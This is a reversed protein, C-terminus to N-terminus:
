YENSLSNNRFHTKRQFKKTLKHHAQRQFTPYFSLRLGVKHLGSEGLPLDNRTTQFTVTFFDQFGTLKNLFCSAFFFCLFTKKKSYDSPQFYVCLIIIFIYPFLRLLDLAFCVCVCNIKKYSRSEIFWSKLAIGDRKKGLLFFAFPLRSKVETLLNYRLVFRRIPLSRWQFMMLNVHGGFIFDMFM